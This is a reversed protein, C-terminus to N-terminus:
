RESVEWASSRKLKQKLLLDTYKGFAFALSLMLGFLLYNGFNLLLRYLGNEFFVSILVGFFPFIQILLKDLSSLKEIRQSFPLHVSSLATLNFFIRLLVITVLIHLFVQVAKGSSTLYILTFIALQPILVHHWLVKLGGNIAEFIKEKVIFHYIWSAEYDHHSSISTIGVIVTFFLSSLILVNARSIPASLPDIPEEFFLLYVAIAMSIALMSLIKVMVSKDRRLHIYVFEYFAFELGSKFFIRKAKRLFNLFRYSKADNVPEFATLINQLNEIKFAYFPAISLVLLVILLSFIEALNLKISGIGMMWVFIKSFIVQPILFSFSSLKEDLWKFIDTGDNQISFYKNIVQYILFTLFVALIQMPFIFKKLKQLKLRRGMLLMLLLMFNSILIVFITSIAFYACSAKLLQATSIKYGFSKAFALVFTPSLNYSLNLFMIFSLFSLYKASRYAGPSIPISSFFEIEGTNLVMTDFEVLITFILLFFEVSLLIISFDLLFSNFNQDQVKSLAVGLSLMLFWLSNILLILLIRGCSVKGRKKSRLELKLM